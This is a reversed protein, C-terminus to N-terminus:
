VQHQAAYMISGCISTTCPKCEFVVGTFFSAGSVVRDLRELFTNIPLLAGYLLVTTSFPCSLVGYLCRELLLKDHFVHWSKKLIDLRQSAARSVSRLSKEFTMKYDFTVGLLLDDSEKLVTGSITLSSLQQRM